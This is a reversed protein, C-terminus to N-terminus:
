FAVNGNPHLHARLLTTAETEQLLSFFICCVDVFVVKCGNSELYDTLVVDDRYANTEKANIHLNQVGM